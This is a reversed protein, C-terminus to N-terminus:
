WAVRAEINRGKRRATSSEEGGERDGFLAVAGKGGATREAHM